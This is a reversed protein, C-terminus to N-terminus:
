KLSVAQRIRAAVSMADIGYFRRLHEQGGVESCFSDPLGIRMFRAKKGCEAIVEGVASGLGGIVNHEELTFIAKGEDVFRLVLADDLPKVTHMSVVGCSVNHRALEEAAAVAVHLMNGTSILVADKGEKLVIGKGVEFRLSAKHVVPDAGGRGLRIYCPGPLRYAAEVCHACEFPDGPCFITMNPLARMFAIDETAHHSPGLSSYSLGGGAGVLKVPLNQYCLDLRIQELPRIIMFPAISYTFVIKGSLALGAAIGVTDQEAVGTNFFRDPFEERFKEFVSFGMDPTLLVMRKDKRSLAELTRIFTNRM